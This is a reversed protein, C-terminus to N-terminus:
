EEIPIPRTVRHYRATQLRNFGGGPVFARFWTGDPYGAGPGGEPDFSDPDFALIWGHLYSGAARWSNALNGVDLTWQVSLTSGASITDSPGFADAHESVYSPAYIILWWRFIRAPEDAAHYESDWDWNSPERTVFSMTGDPELTSWFAIESNGAVIRMRPVEPLWFPQSQRLVGADTGAGRHSSLWLRLRAAHSEASESAYAPVRRDTGLAGRAQPGAYRPYRMLVGRTVYEAFAEHALGLTQLYRDALRAFPERVWCPTLKEDRIVQYLPIPETM